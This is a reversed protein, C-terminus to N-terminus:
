SRKSPLAFMTVLAITVEFFQQFLVGPTRGTEIVADPQNFLRGLLGHNIPILIDTETPHYMAYIGIFCFTGIVMVACVSATLNMIFNKQRIRALELHGALLAKDQLYKREAKQEANHFWSNILNFVIKSGAGVLVSEIM